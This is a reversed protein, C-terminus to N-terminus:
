RRLIQKSSTVKILMDFITKVMRPIYWNPLPFVNYGWLLNGWPGYARDCVNQTFVCNNWYRSARQLDAPRSYHQWSCHITIDTVFPLCVLLNMLRNVNEHWTVWTGLLTWIHFDQLKPDDGKHVRHVNRLCNLSFIALFKFFQFSPPYISYRDYTRFIRILVTLESQIRTYAM